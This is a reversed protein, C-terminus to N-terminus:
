KRALEGILQAAVEARHGNGGLARFVQKAKDGLAILQDLLEPILKAPDDELHEKAEFQM